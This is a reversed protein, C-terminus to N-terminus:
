SICRGVFDESGWVQRPFVNLSFPAKAMLWNQVYIAGWAEFSVNLGWSTYTVPVAAYDSPQYSLACSRAIVSLLHPTVYTADFILM